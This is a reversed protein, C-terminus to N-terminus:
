ITSQQPEILIGGIVEGTEPDIVDKRILKGTMLDTAISIFRDVAGPITKLHDLYDKMEQTLKTM